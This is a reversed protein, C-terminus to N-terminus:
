CARRVGRYQRMIRYYIADVDDIYIGTGLAWQWPEFSMSYALKPMVDASTGASTGGTRTARYYMFDGGRKAAEIQLVVAHVGDADVTALRNKGELARDNHLVTM